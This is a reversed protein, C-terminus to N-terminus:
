KESAGMFFFFIALVFSALSVMVPIFSDLNLFQPMIFFVITVLMLIVGVAFDYTRKMM